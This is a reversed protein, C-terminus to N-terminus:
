QSKTSDHRRVDRSKGAFPTLSVFVSQHCYILTDGVLLSVIYYLVLDYKDVTTLDALGSISTDLPPRAGLRRKPRGGKDFDTTDVNDGIRIELAVFLLSRPVVNKKGRLWAIVIPVGNEDGM